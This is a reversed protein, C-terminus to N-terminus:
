APNRRAPPLMVAGSLMMNRPHKAAAGKRSVPHWRAGLKFFTRTRKAPCNWKGAHAEITRECFEDTVLIVHPGAMVSWILATAGSKSASVVAPRML